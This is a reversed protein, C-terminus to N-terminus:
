FRFPVREDPYPLRSKDPRAPDYVRTPMNVFSAAREGDNIVGHVVYPPIRLRCPNKEGVELVELVGYTPSDPRIDYLAVRFQGETYALRDDQLKHYVWARISGPEATVRYVHVIEDQPEDRQTLLEVLAGRDDSFITLPTVLVGKIATKQSDAPGTADVDWPADAKFEEFAPISKTTM